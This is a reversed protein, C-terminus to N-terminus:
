VEGVWAKCKECPKMELAKLYYGKGREYIQNHERWKASGDSTVFRSLVNAAKYAADQKEAERRLERVMPGLSEGKAILECRECTKTGSGSLLLGGLGGVVVGVPGFYSGVIIGTATLILRKM